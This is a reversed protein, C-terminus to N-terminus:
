AEVEADDEVTESGPVTLDGSGLEGGIFNSIISPVATDFGTVGMTGRDDPNAVSTGTAAVAISILRADPNVVERYRVLAQHPHVPGAWSQDDTYLCFADYVNKRIGAWILPLACDTGGQGSERIARAADDLRQNGSIAPRFLGKEGSSFALIECGPETKLYTLALCAASEHAELMPLGIVGRATVKGCVKGQMSGSVDIAFLIRKGTPAVTAMALYVASDLADLVQPVPRWRLSGRVGHGQAYVKLTSLLNIPHIRGRRLRNEDALRDIVTRRADVSDLLGVQSMKGLNRIMAGIPMGELLADWVNVSNLMETPICERPLRFDRILRVIEAEKAEALLAPLALEDVSVPLAGGLGNAFDTAAAVSKAREYAWIQRLHSDPHPEVGVGPWGYTLYHAVEGKPSPSPHADNKVGENAERYAKFSAFGAPAQNFKIRTQRLVDRHNWGARERYKVGQFALQGADKGAYWSKIARRWTSGHGRMADLFSVLEFFTSGTRCVDPVIEVARRKTADSGKALCVALTFLAPTQRPARGSVSVERIMNVVAIGAEDGQFLVRELAAVNQLTMATSEVYFSGGESGLVLFRGVRDADTLAWGHGGAENKVQFPSIPASQPNTPSFANAYQRDAFLRLDTM